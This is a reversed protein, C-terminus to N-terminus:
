MDNKQKEFQEALYRGIWGTGDASPHVEIFQEMQDITIRSNILLAHYASVVSAYPSAELMGLIVGSQMDVTMSARGTAREPVAWFSGPGAPSPITVSLGGTKQEGCYALDNRLKIAQPVTTLPVPPDIGLIADAATRGQRRALPTLWSTGTVDGVAYIGPILTEMREDVEIFGEPTLPVGSIGSIEPEMGAALLVADAEIQSPGDETVIEVGSVQGEGIIRSVTVGEYIQVRHLDRKAERVLSEPFSSLLTSRALITVESGFVSFLYAYEATIAGGGIIVLRTPLTTHSLITHATYVGTLKDGPIHSRKPRSGTAIIVSEAEIVEGQIMVTRGHVTAEGKVIKVGADRTETDIVGAITQIITQMQRILLPYNMIPLSTMVGTRHLTEVHELTRAVDNLACIVMCGQHLCQGGLGDQRRDVLVVDRGAGALRMAAYRGAPGGGIVVIM